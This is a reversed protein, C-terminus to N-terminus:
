KDTNFMKLNPCQKYEPELKVFVYSKYFKLWNDMAKDRLKDHVIEKIKFYDSELSAKHPPTETLVKVIRYGVKQDMTRYAQATTIDGPKMNSVQTSITPDIDGIQFQTTRNKSKINVLVGGMAKFIQDDSYIEVAKQFSIKNGLIMNRVSDAMLQANLIGNADPKAAILIHRVKSKGGKRDMVEIIHIGFKTEVLESVQGIPLSFAAQEFEPVMIGPEIWGLEGGNSATGGDDSNLIAQTSFSSEKSLLDKRIKEAKLKMARKAERSIKPLFVIQALQVESNYYQISDKHLNNFYEKVDKPAPDMGALLKNKAREALMQQKIDGRFEVKLESLTKNYYKEFKEQTGFLQIFYELRHNLEADVEEDNIVISDKLAKSYLLKDVILRQLVECDGNSSDNSKMRYFRLDSELLMQDNVLAVIKDISQATGQSKAFLISTVFGFILIYKM